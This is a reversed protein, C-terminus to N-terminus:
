GGIGPRLLGTLGDLINQVEHRLESQTLKQTQAVRRTYDVWIDLGARLRAVEIDTVLGAAREVTGKSLQLQGEEDLTGRATRMAFMARMVERIAGEHEKGAIELASMRIKVSPDGDTDPAPETREVHTLEIVGVIRAGPKNWIQRVLPELANSPGGGIKSDLRIKTTM